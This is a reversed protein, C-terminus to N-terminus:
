YNACSRTEDTNSRDQHTQLAQVTDQRLHGEFRFDALLAGDRALVTGEADDNGLAWSARGLRYTSAGLRAEVGYGPLEAIDTFAVPKGKPGSAAIARSLPHNSWSGLAAALSMAEDDIEPGNMLRVDGVTLTGTKDFVA